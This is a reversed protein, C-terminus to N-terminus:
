YLYIHFLCENSYARCFVDDCKSREDNDNSSPRIETASGNVGWNSVAQVFGPLIEMGAADFIEEGPKPELEEGMQAILGNEVRLSAKFVKGLGDHINGGTILM